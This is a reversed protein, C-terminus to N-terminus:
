RGMAKKIRQSLRIGALAASSGLILMPMLLYVRFATPNAKFAQMWHSIAVRRKGAIVSNVAVEYHLIGFAVPYAALQAGHLELIKLNSIIRLARQNSLSNGAQEYSMTVFNPVTALRGCNLLRLALEFDESIPVEPNFAGITDLASKRILATQIFATYGEIFRSSDVWIGDKDTPWDYIKPNAGPIYRLLRGAVLLCEPGLREMLAMQQELKGLLWEDDDDQFAVFAGRAAQIGTNRAAAAGGGIERRIYTIRPDNAAIEAVIMGAELTRSADDVVIVELDRFSQRLVSHIARPLTHPRNHTPIVVSVSPTKASVTM